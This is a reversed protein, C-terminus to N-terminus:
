ASANPLPHKDALQRARHEIIRAEGDKLKATSPHHSDSLEYGGYIWRLCRLLYDAGKDNLGARNDRWVRESYERIGTDLQSFLRREQHGPDYIGAFRLKAITATLKIRTHGAPRVWTVEAFRALWKSGVSQSLGNVSLGTLENIQFLTAEGGLDRVAQLVQKQRQNLSM